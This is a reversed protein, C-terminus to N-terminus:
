KTKEPIIGYTEYPNKKAYHNALVLEGNKDCRFRQAHAIVKTQKKGFAIGTKKDRGEYCELTVEGFKRFQKPNKRTKNM